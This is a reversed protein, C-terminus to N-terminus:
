DDTFIIAYIEQLWGYRIAAAYAGPSQKSFDSKKTYKRAEEICNDKSKWHNMPAQAIEMHECIDELWGNKRASAFAGRSGKKFAHKTTYRKAEKACNEKSQWHGRPAYTQTDDTMHSTIEYFWGERKAKTYLNGHQRCFESTLSYQKAVEACKEKTWYGSPRQPSVMHQCVDDLWENKRCSAYAGPAGQKFQNRTKYKLAEERCKDLTWSDRKKPMHHCIEDLWDNNKAAKYASGSGTQFETRNQYKLAEQQCENLTWDAVRKIESRPLHSSIEDLWGNRKAAQGAGTRAFMSFTDYKFAEEKCRSKTWYNPVKRTVELFESIEDVWGNRKASRYANPSSKIFESLTLYQLAEDLCKQKNWRNSSGLRGLKESHNLLDFGLDEYIQFYESEKEFVESASIDYGTLQEFITDPEFAIMKSKTSNMNEKQHQEMRVDFAQRTQGIYAKNLRKNYIAYICHLWGHDAITMHSCIDDLWGNAQAASYAGNPANDFDKRSSYKLAEKAVLAKTWYHRPLVQYTMHSCIDDLWGNRQAARYASPENKYFDNRHQFKKSLSHCRSKTWYGAPKQVYLLGECVEELWGERQATRYASASNKLFDNRTTYKLAEERCRNKTWM